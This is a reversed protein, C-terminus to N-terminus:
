GEVGPVVEVGLTELARVGAKVWHRLTRPDEFWQGSDGMSGVEEEGEGTWGEEGAGLEGSVRRRKVEGGAGAGAGVQAPGPPLPGKGGSPPPPRLGGARMWGAVNGEWKIRELVGIVALLTPDYTDEAETDEGTTSTSASLTPDNPLPIPIPLAPLLSSPSTPFSSTSLAKKPKQRKRKKHTSADDPGVEALHTHTLTHTYTLATTTTATYDVERERRRVQLDSTRLAGSYERICLHNWPQLYAKRPSDDLLLTTHASHAQPTEGSRTTTTSPTLSLKAWPRTLDKTTQTKRHYDKEELGLTDRAWVAVLEDSRTSFCKSVMDAVSHPQASSWVMTDLWARTRPHFLYGRFSAMYPRAHVTRLPRLAEPDEYAPSSPSFEPRSHNNNNNHSHPPRRPPRFQRRTHPSRYVLTGNLDLILLKRAASPTPLQTSPKQSESIYEPTPSTPVAPPPPPSPRRDDRPYLDHPAHRIPSSSPPSPYTDTYPDFSPTNPTRSGSPDYNYDFGATATFEYPTYDRSRSPSRIPM